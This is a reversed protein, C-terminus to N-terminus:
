IKTRFKSFARDTWVNVRRKDNQCNRLGSKDLTLKLVTKKKSISLLHRISSYNLDGQQLFCFLRLLIIISTSLTSFSFM